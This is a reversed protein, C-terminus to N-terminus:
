VVVASVVVAASDVGTSVAPVILPIGVPLLFEVAVTLDGVSEGVAVRVPFM